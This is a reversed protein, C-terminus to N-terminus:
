QILSQFSTKKKEKKKQLHISVASSALHDSFFRTCIFFHNESKRRTKEKLQNISQYHSVPKNLRLSKRTLLYLVDLFITHFTVQVYSFYPKLYHIFEIKM